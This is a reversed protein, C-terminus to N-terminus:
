STTLLSSEGSSIFIIEMKALWVLGRVIHPRRNLEFQNTLAGVVQPGERRLTDIITKCEEDNLQVYTAFSNLTLQRRERLLKMDANLTVVHTGSLQSTPYTAFMAFPDARDPRRLLPLPTCLDPDARRREALDDWLHQYRQYIVSWDYDQRARTRGSEGMQNRLDKNAILQECADVLARSDLATLQSTLGCYVDYSDLGLEHRQALDTGLPAPPTMTPIRFGDIKDRVTDKYGDWDSVIVPLGAAMAEIPTLGFTEQINDSLSIFIDGAGWAHSRVVPDRGDVDHLTVTPCLLKAADRFANEIPDNPYWGCQILRVRRGKAARGLATMMQMPHAKAHFSLRGVFLFVIEDDDIGLQQRSSHRQEASFDYDSCHVGLPIVPLQPLEFRTAGLKQQLYHAQKELLFRVTDRVATSTCILADWSRVPAILLDTISTMAIHSATTHTVGCLSHTRDGIASRQWASNSINPGPLFVCGDEALGSPQDLPIWATSGQFGYRKVQRAFENAAQHSPAHCSLRTANSQAAARLFGEGAAHRGMLRSTATSFGEPQYYITAHRM